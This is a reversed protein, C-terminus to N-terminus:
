FHANKSILATYIYTLSQVDMRDSIPAKTRSYRRIDKPSNAYYAHDTDTNLRRHPSYIYDDDGFHYQYRHYWPREIPTIMFSICLMRSFFIIIDHFYLNWLLWDREEILSNEIYILYNFDDRHCSFIGDRDARNQRNRRSQSYKDRHTTNHRHRRIYRKQYSNESSSNSSTIM